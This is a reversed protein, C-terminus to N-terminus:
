VMVGIKRALDQLIALADCHRHLFEDVGAEGLADKLGAPQGALLVVPAFPLEKLEAVLSPGMQRYRSDTSVVAVIPCNAKKAARIASESEAFWAEGEVALGGMAFFSRTFDWRPMYEAVPGINALFVQPDSPWKARRTLLRLRLEEFEQAERRQPISEIPLSDGGNQQRDSPLIMRITNAIEGLTAGNRVTEATAELLTVAGKAHAHSLNELVQANENETFFRNRKEYVAARQAAFTELGTERRLPLENSLDPYMNTGVLVDRRIVRNNKRAAATEAVWRQPLGRQLAAVMGGAAEIKQFLTWAKAALETTLSEVYWSGGAPDIVDDSHCEARLILQTNRAIRRSFDDPLGLPSDFPCIHLSDCGGFIAALGSTTGRLINVHPDFITASRQSSRAHIFMKQAKDSGGCAAVIHSWLLRAARLKAIEMFFQSGVSFGFLIRPAIEECTLGRKELARLHSLATALTLALEQVASSGGEHYGNGDAALTKLHSAEQVGWRTLLALDDYAATLSIPLEGHSSLAGIPDTILCGRLEGCDIGQQCCHAVLLAAFPLAATGCHVLLPTRALDVGELAEDLDSVSAISSGGRGIQNTPAQDPDRGAQSAQDLVLNVATQGQALDNQLARNFERAQPYLIEQAILWPSQRYGLAHAGRLYPRGGPQTNIHPWPQCNESTYLPQLTIGEYTPTTMVQEFPRGKLHRVVETQWAALTAPEFESLLFRPRTSDTKESMM